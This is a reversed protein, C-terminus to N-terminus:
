FGWTLGVSAGAKAPGATALALKANVLLQNSIYYNVGAAIASEGGYTGVAASLSTKGEARANPVLASAAMAMAGVGAMQKQNRADLANVREDTYSRDGRSNNEVMSAVQGVNTADTPATGPAVNALQREAGPTGISVTNDRDAVSGPGLAASNRGLATAAPLKESNNAAVAAGLAGLASGVSTYSVNNLTYNPSSIAGTNPDYTSGAGFNDAASVGQNRVGTGVATLATNTRHLQSGNVADTSDPTLRGAAVNVLQRESGASGFSISDDRDAISGPGVAVSNGGSATAPALNKPNTASITNGVAGFAGGVNDYSVGNISYTPATVTGTAPDYTSGGGLNRAASQGSRSVNDGLKGLESNTAFLQGGIVADTSDATLRAAAVNVLQRETGVTGLSVSNDRDALSGPGIAVSNRATASAPALGDPNTSAVAGGLASLAAGVNGYDAGNLTYTPASVTGTSADYRSGGGLNSASAAGLHNTARGLVDLATNTASLQSGNVADTSRGSLQGAAVNTITREAGQTGVSVTSTPSPAAFGYNTGNIATGATAVVASTNSGYGIAVDNANVATAGPGVATSNVAFAQSGHGFAAASDASATASSGFVVTNDANATANLGGAISGNGNAVTGPGVAVSDQGNTQSAVGDSKASFYKTKNDTYVNAGSRTEAAKADTHGNALRLMNAAATDTYGNSSKLTEGARADTFAKSSKLADDAKVDTYVRAQNVAQSVGESAKTDAYAKAQNLTSSLGGNLQDVNVADTGSSGATVGTIQRGGVEVSNDRTTRSGVGLAVSNVNSANSNAGVATAGDAPTMSGAGVATSSTGVPLAQNVIAGTSADVCIINICGGVAVAGPANANASGGVAVAQLGANALVGVSTGNVQANASVGVSTFSNTTTGMVQAESLNCALAAAAAIITVRTKM